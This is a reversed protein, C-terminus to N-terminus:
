TMLFHTKLEAEIAGLVHGMLDNMDAELEPKAIAKKIMAVYDQPNMNAGAQDLRTLEDEPLHRALVPVAAAHLSKSIAVYIKAKQTESLPSHAVSTIIAKLRTDITM